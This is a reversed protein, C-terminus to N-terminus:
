TEHARLHTYSVPTVFRADILMIREIPEQGGSAGTLSGHELLTTALQSGLFGGGGTIIIKM